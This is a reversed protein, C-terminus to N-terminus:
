QPAPNRVAHRKGSRGLPLAPAALQESFADGIAAGHPLARGVSRREGARDDINPLRVSLTVVGVEVDRFLRRGEIQARADAGVLIAAERNLGSEWRGVLDRVVTQFWIENSVMNDSRFSGNPESMEESLRWFEQDTLQSPLTEALSTAAYNTRRLENSGALEDRITWNGIETGVPLKVDVAM